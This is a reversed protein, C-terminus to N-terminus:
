GRIGFRLALEVMPFLQDGEVLFHCRSEVGSLLWKTLWLDFGAGLVFGGDLNELAGTGTKGMVYTKEYALEGAFSWYVEVYEAFQAKSKFGFWGPVLVLRNDRNIRNELDVYTAGFIVSWNPNIGVDFDLDWAPGPHFYSALNGAPLFVAPAVGFSGGRSVGEAHAQALGFSLILGLLCARKM